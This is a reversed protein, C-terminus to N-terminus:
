CTISSGSKIIAKQFPVDLPVLNDISKALLYLLFIIIIFILYYM